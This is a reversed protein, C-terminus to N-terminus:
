IEEVTASVRFKTNNTSPLIMIAIVQETGNIETGLFQNVTTVIESHQIHQSINLCLDYGTIEFNGDYNNAFALPEQYGYTGYPFTYALLNPPTSTNTIIPNIVLLVSFAHNDESTVQFDKLRLFRHGIGTQLKKFAMGLYGNLFGTTYKESGATFTSSSCGLYRPVQSNSCNYISCGRFDIDFSDGVNPAKARLFIHQRPNVFLPKVCKITQVLIEQGEYSLYINVKNGSYIYEFYFIGKDNGFTYNVGSPGSGDLPDYWNVRNELYYLGIAASKLAIRQYSNSLEFYVGEEQIHSPTQSLTGLGFSIEAGNYFLYKSLDIWGGYISGEVNPAINKTQIAAISGELSYAGQINIAGDIYSFPTIGTSYRSLDYQNLGQEPVINVYVNREEIRTLDDVFTTNSNSFETQIVEIENTTGITTFSVDITDTVTSASNFVYVIQGRQVTLTDGSSLFTIEAESTGNNKISLVNCAFTYSLNSDFKTIKVM